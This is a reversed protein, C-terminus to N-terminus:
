EQMIKINVNTDLLVENEEKLKKNEEKLKNIQGQLDDLIICKCDVCELLKFGDKELKLEEQLKKNEEIAINFAINMIKVYDKVSEVAPDEKDGEVLENIEEFWKQNQKIEEKLEEVDKNALTTALNHLEVLKKNKEELERIKARDANIDNTMQTFTDASLTISM